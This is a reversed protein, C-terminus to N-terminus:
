DEPQPVSYNSMPWLCARGHKKTHSVCFLAQYCSELPPVSSFLLSSFVVYVPFFFSTGCGEPRMSVICLADRPYGRQYKYTAM